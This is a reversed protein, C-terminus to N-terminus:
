EVTKFRISFESKEKIANYIEAVEAIDVARIVKAKTIFFSTVLLKNKDTQQVNFIYTGLKNEINIKAPTDILEINKDFTLMYFYKDSGQFDPYFDTTRNASSLDPYIIHSFWDTVELEFNGDSTKRLGNSQFTASVTTKYPFVYDNNAIAFTAPKVLGGIEWFRKLYLPNITKDPLKGLYNSRTLTSYQGSINTKGTFSVTLKETNVEAMCSTNRINESYASGPTNVVRLSDYYNRKYGKFDSPHIIIAPTDEYYFPLEEFYYHNRDSTPIVYSISNEYLPVAFLVDNDHLSAFYRASVAGIRKDILYANVFGYGFRPIMAAYIEDKSHDRIFGGAIDVGPKSILQMEDKLYYSTDPHYQTSDAMWKQFRWLNLRNLSDNKPDNFKLATRDFGSNDQNRIGQGAEKMYFEFKGEKDGTMLYWPKIFDERFSDFDYELSENMKPHFSFWPLDLYPRSGAEDMCGPLNDFHWQYCFNEGCLTPAVGCGNYFTTDSQLHTNYSFSFDLSQVPYKHHFFFRSLMFAYINNKFPISVKYRIKVIDGEKLDPIDYNFTSLTGFFAKDDLTKIETLRSDPSIKLVTGDPKDVEGSFSLVSSNHPISTINRIDPAHVFYTEDIPEPLTFVKLKNIGHNNLIKYEVEKDVILNLFLSKVGVFTYSDKKKLILIDENRSLSDFVAKEQAFVKNGCIVLICIFCLSRNIFVNLKNYDPIFSIPM